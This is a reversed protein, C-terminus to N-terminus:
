TILLIHNYDYDGYWNILLSAIDYIYGNLINDSTAVKSDQLGGDHAGVCEQFREHNSFGILNLFQNLSNSLQGMSM